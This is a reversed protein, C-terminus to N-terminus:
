LRFRDDYVEFDLGNAGSKPAMEDMNQEQLVGIQTSDQM